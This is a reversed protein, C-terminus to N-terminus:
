GWEQASLSVPSPESQLPVPVCPEELRFSVTNLFMIYRNSILQFVEEPHSYFCTLGTKTELSSMGVHALVKDFAVRLM